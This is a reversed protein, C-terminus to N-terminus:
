LCRLLRGPGVAILVGGVARDADDQRYGLINQEGCWRQELERLGDLKQVEGGASLERM